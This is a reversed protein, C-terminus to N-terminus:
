RSRMEREIREGKKEREEIENEVRPAGERKM